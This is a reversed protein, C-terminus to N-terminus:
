CRPSQRLAGGCSGDALQWSGDSPPPRSWRRSCCGRLASARRGAGRAPPCATARQRPHDGGCLQERRRCLGLPTHPARLRPHAPGVCWTLQRDRRVSIVGGLWLREPSPWPWRKGCGDGEGGCAARSCCAREPGRGGGGTRPTPHQDRAYLEDAQVHGSIGKGPRYWIPICGSATRARGLCALLRSHARGARLRGWTAQRPCGHALLTVVM